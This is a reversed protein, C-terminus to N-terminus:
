MAKMGKVLPMARHLLWAQKELVDRTEAFYDAIENLDRSALINIVFRSM